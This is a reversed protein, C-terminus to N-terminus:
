GIDGNEEAAKRKLAELKMRKREEKTPLPKTVNQGIAYRSDQTYFIEKCHKEIRTVFDEFLPYTNDPSLMKIQILETNNKRRTVNNQVQIKQNIIEVKLGGYGFLLYRIQKMKMVLTVQMQEFLKDPDFKLTNTFMSNLANNLFFFHKSLKDKPNIEMEREHARLHDSYLFQPNPRLRKIRLIAKNGIIRKRLLLENQELLKKDNDMYVDTITCLEPRDLTYTTLRSVERIFNSFTKGDFVTYRREIKLVDLM